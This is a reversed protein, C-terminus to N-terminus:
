KISTTKEKVVVTEAVTEENGEEAKRELTKKSVIVNPSSFFKEATAESGRREGSVDTVAHSYMSAMMHSQAETSTSGKRKQRLLHLEARLENNEQELEKRRQTSENANTDGGGKTTGDNKASSSNEIAHVDVNTNTSIQTMQRMEMIEAQLRRVNEEAARDKQQQAIMDEMRKKQRLEEKKQREDSAIAAATRRQKAEMEQLTKRNALEEMAAAAATEETMERSKRLAELQADLAESRARMAVEEQIALLYKAHLVEKTTSELDMKEVMKINKNKGNTTRKSLEAQLTQSTATAFEFHRQLTSLAAKHERLTQKKWHHFDLEEKERKEREEALKKEQELRRERERTANQEYMEAKKKAEAAERAAALTDEGAAAAPMASSASEQEDMLERTLQIVKESEIERLQKEEQMQRMLTELQQELLANKKKEEYEQKQKEKNEENEESEEDMNNSPEDNSDLLQLRLKALEASKKLDEEHYKLASLRLVSMEAKMQYLDDEMEGFQADLEDRVLREVDKEVEVLKESDLYVTNRRQTGREGNAEGKTGSNTKKKTEGGSSSSLLITSYGSQEEKEQRRGIEETKPLNRRKAEEDKEKKFIEKEEELEIGDRKAQRQNRRILRKGRREMDADSAAAGKMQILRGYNNSEKLEGMEFLADALNAYMEFLEQSQRKDNKRLKKLEINMRQLNKQNRKENKSYQIKRQRWRSQEKCYAFHMAANASKMNDRLMKVVNGLPHAMEQCIITVDELCEDYHRVEVQLSLLDSSDVQQMGDDDINNNMKDHNSSPPLSGLKSQLDKMMQKTKEEVTATHKDEATLVVVDHMKSTSSTSAASDERAAQLLISPASATNKSLTLKEKEQMLLMLRRRIREREKKQKTDLEKKRDKDKM